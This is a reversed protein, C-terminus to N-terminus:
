GGGVAVPAALAADKAPGDCREEAQRIYRLATEHRSEGPFKMGVAYILEEYKKRADAQIANPEIVGTRQAEALQEKTLVATTTAEDAPGYALIDPKPAGCLLHKWEAVDYEAKWREAYMHPTLDNDGCKVVVWFESGKATRMERVYCEVDGTAVRQATPTALAQMHEVIAEAQQQATLAEDWEHGISKMLGRLAKGCDREYEEAVTEQAAQLQGELEEIEALLGERGEALPAAEARLALLERALAIAVRQDPDYESWDQVIVRLDDDSYAPLKEPAPTMTM